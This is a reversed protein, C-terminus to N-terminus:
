VEELLQQLVPVFVRGALQVFEGDPGDAFPDRDRMCLAIDVDGEDYKFAEDRRRMVYARQAVQLAREGDKGRALEKAADFSAKEFVPLPRLLGQERLAVLEALHATAEAPDLPGYRWAGDSTVVRTVTPWPREADTHQHHQLTLVLHQLWARLRDKAKLKSARLYTRPGDGDGVFGDLSGTIQVERDGIPVRVDVRRAGADALRRAEALLAEADARVDHLLVAGLEGTPLEGRARALRVPDDRDEVGRMARRVADDQLFFRDLNDIEFPEDASEADDARRVRLRLTRRLFTRCPHWWFDLLDQLLLEGVADPEDDVVDADARPFRAEAPCWPGTAAPGDAVDPAFTGYTFLRPDQGNYRPSWPQLPHRVVVHERPARQDPSKCTRDIHDLLESLVVSPARESNDKASRGVYTLHLRERASLLLDLFLQRDDLRRDRDGPRPAAAILDFPENRDSRPFSEDDLGCLFLHRVPVARMPLMAAITISGGLFGRSPAGQALADEFWSRLVALTVPGDYEALQADRRLAVTARQLHASADHDSADKPDARFLTALLRDIRDAWEVLPRPERLAALEPFLTHVFGLFRGLLDTRADTVDGLPAMDLVLHEAPGTLTGLVLRDLGQRWAHDDFAPLDFRRARHAGDLGWRIGAAHCLHRLTPLESAFLGFRRQVAPAELLYLVEALTLRSDALELLRLVGRCLPLERAPHRDAVTVPLRAQLPRFVAEAYPAYRDIDPTLVLIEHPQLSDDEQLAACIQDRVVELEREPSHCEHVRLSADDRALPLPPAGRESRDYARVVDQQLCALLTAAPADDTALVDAEDLAIREAALRDEADSLLQQFDRSEVGFRTLLANEGSRARRGRQEGVFHPTPQPAYVTVQVRRAIAALLQLVAPPLTTPGFVSLRPPLHTASWTDDDLLHRLQELQVAPQWAPAHPADPEALEQFLLPTPDGRRRGGARRQTRPELGADALLARWLAAQWPAHPSLKKHDEGNAFDRLLDDRHLQYDDFCRALRTSLQLHKQQQPDDAIYDGAAGFEHGRESLLRWIRFVLVERRFRAPLEADGAAACLRQVFSGVFPMEVGASIGLRECLRLELWRAVGQGPVAITETALPSLPASALDEALLEFLQELRHSTVITLGM